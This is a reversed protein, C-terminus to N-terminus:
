EVEVVEADTSDDYSMDDDYIEDADEDQYYQSHSKIDIKWGSVKAALRVNQGEKGIALSLQYDPVVVLAAKEEDNDAVIFVDEVKAPSLVNAILEEPEDSWPIVDIKEGDLENVVSQVRSGRNGVCSGVPDVNEFETYVTMKTRSGAERAIAKIEVTGDTLEPVELEFLKKVLGPHSRSLYIQPGKLSHKVDMIYAKLRDNVEFREGPVQERPPLIAETHGLDVFLTAGSKRHVVGTVIEYLRNKFDDYVKSREAERIRQVVVQKATQAAIRGFDEPTVAFEIADGIEYRADIDHADELSIERNEDMVEGVVELRSLVSIDGTESDIDVRVNDVNINGTTSYNRRYAALLASEIAELLVGKEIHKEEELQELADIFERNM